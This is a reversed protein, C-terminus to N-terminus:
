KFWSLINNLLDTINNGKAVEVVTVVLDGSNTVTLEKGCKTTVKEGPVLKTKVTVGPLSKETTRIIVCNEVGCPCQIPCSCEDCDLCNGCLGECSNVCNCTECDECTGCDHCTKNV